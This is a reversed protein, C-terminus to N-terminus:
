LDGLEVRLVLGGVLGVAAWEGGASVSVAHIARPPYFDKDIDKTCLVGPGSVSTESPLDAVADSQSVDIEQVSKKKRTDFIRLIGDDGGALIRRGDPLIDLDHLRQETRAEFVPEEKELKMALVYGGDADMASVAMDFKGPARCARANVLNLSGQVMEFQFPASKAQPWQMVRLLPDWEQILLYKGDRLFNVSNARSSMTDQWIISGTKVDWVNVYRGNSAAVENTNHPNFAISDFDLHYASKVQPNELSRLLDGSSADHLQVVGHKMACALVGDAVDFWAAYPQSAPERPFVKVKKFRVLESVVGKSSTKCVRGDLGASFVDSGVALVRSVGGKHQSLLSIKATKAM